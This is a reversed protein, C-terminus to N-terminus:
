RRYHKRLSARAKKVMEERMAEGFQDVLQNIRALFEPSRKWFRITERAVGLHQAAATATIGEALLKAALEKKRTWSWRTPSKM